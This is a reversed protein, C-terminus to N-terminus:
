NLASYLSVFSAHAAFQRRSSVSTLWKPLALASSCKFDLFSNVNILRFQLPHILDVGVCFPLPIFNILLKYFKINLCFKLLILKIKINKIMAIHIIYLKCYLLKYRLYHERKKTASSRYTKLRLAHKSIPNQSIKTASVGM